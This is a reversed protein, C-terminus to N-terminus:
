PAPIAITRVTLFSHILTSPREAPGVQVVFQHNQLSIPIYAQQVECNSCSQFQYRPARACGGVWGGECVCVGFILGLILPGACVLVCVAFDGM